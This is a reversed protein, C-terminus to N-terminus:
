RGLVFKCSAGDEHWPLLTREHQSYVARPDNQELSKCHRSNCNCHRLRYRIVVDVIRWNSWDDLGTVNCGTGIRRVTNPRRGRQGVISNEFRCCSDGTLADILPGATAGFACTQHFCFTREVCTKSSRPGPTERFDRSNSVRRVNFCHM